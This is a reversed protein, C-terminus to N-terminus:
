FCDKERRIQALEQVSKARLFLNTTRELELTTPATSKGAKRLKNVVEFRSVIADNTPATHVAFKLNAETYEHGCYIKTKGSYCNLKALSEFMNEATGEFLRGCGGSFLTDGTFAVPTNFNGAVSVYAIHDLTHGPVEHVIFEAGLIDIQEGENLPMSPGKLKKNSGFVKCNPFKNCLSEVGGQHDFHWHTLAIGVLQLQHGRLYSIVPFAEGPDVVWAEKQNHIVWIYNDTFANIQDVILM